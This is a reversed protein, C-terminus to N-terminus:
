LKMNKQNSILIGNFSNKGNVYILAHTNNKIEKEWNNMDTIEYKESFVLIFGQNRKNNLYVILYEDYKENEIITIKGNLLGIFQMEKNNNININEFFKDLDHRKLSIMKHYEKFYESNDNIYFYINQKHQINLILFNNETFNNIEFTNNRYYIEEM